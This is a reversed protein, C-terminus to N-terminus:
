CEAHKLALVIIIIFLLRSFILKLRKCKLGNLGLSQDNNRNIKSEQWNARTKMIKRLIVLMIWVDSIISM